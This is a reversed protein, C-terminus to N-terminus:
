SAAQRRETHQARGKQGPLIAHIEAGQGPAAQLSFQGGVVEVRERMNVLGIGQKQARHPDFGRGDDRIHFHIRGHRQYLRISVHSAAAHKETNNLSEQTIRYITIEVEDSVAESDLDYDLEVRTGTLEEFHESLARLAPRLGLDDLLVPRLDHSIQRVEQITQNLVTSAIGLDQLAAQQGSASNLKKEALEIRFKLSVLQQNIGDHLERSFKRRENLQLRLFKQVLARLRGDALRHEHLNIALGLLVILVVTALIVTMVAIFSNRINADFSAKVKAVEETISDLYLGTGFMWNWPEILDAYGLKDEQEMLPPREWIYRHYGGGSNAADLLGQILLNGNRDRYEYLDEGVFEPITPHVVNIGDQRYAFFYGDEGFSLNQLLHRVAAQQEAESRQPDSTITAIASSALDMQEKLAQKRSETLNYEYVDLVQAALQRSHNLGLLSLVTAAALLPLIALLLIKAKLNM